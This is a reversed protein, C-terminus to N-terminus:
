RTLIGTATQRDDRQSRSLVYRGARRVFTQHLGGIGGGFRSLEPCELLSYDLHIADSHPDYTAFYHGATAHPGCASLVHERIERPLRAIRDTSWLADVPALL